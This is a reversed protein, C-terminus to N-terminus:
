HQQTSAGMLPLCLLMATGKGQQSEVELRGGHDELIGLCIGMGLGTGRDSGKTTFFPTFLKAKVAESMGCGNDEIRILLQDSETASSMRMRGRASGPTSNIREEIAQCANVLLNTFVQNLASGHGSIRAGPFLGSVDFDVLTKWSAKVLELTALLGEVPDIAQKESSEDHRSASRMGAIIAQVRQSGEKILEVQSHLGEFRQAFAQMLEPDPDDSLLDTIFTQLEKLRIELTQNSITMFNVPNKIEHAIGASLLGLNAMKEQQILHAQTAKLHEHQSQLERHAHNLELHVRVRALLEDRSFPKTLYDSGGVEFGTV